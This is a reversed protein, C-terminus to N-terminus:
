IETRTHLIIFRDNHNEQAALFHVHLSNMEACPEDKQCHLGRRSRDTRICHVRKKHPSIKIKQDGSWLM